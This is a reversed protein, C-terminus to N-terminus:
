GDGFVRLFTSTTRRLHDPDLTYCRERGAKAVHVLGAAQLRRLHRTTTSWSHSFRDALEGATMSGGRAHLTVLIHRRHENALAGFVAELEDLERLGQPRV